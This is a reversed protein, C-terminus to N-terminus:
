QAFYCAIWNRFFTVTPILFSLDIGSVCIGTICFVKASFNYLGKLIVEVDDYKIEKNHYVGSINQM